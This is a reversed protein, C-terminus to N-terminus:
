LEFCSTKGCLKGFRLPNPLSADEERAEGQPQSSLAEELHNFILRNNYVIRPFDKDSPRYESHLGARFNASETGIREIHSWTDQDVRGKFAHKLHDIAFMWTNMAAEVDPCHEGKGADCARLAECKATRLAVWGHPLRAPACDATGSIWHPLFARGADSKRLFCTKVGYQQGFTWHSCEEVESCARSCVSADVAAFKDTLKCSNLFCGTHGYRSLDAFIANQGGHRLVVGRHSCDPYAGVTTLEPPVEAPEADICCREFTFDGDWCGQNGEPGYKAACCTEWSVGDMWCSEDGKSDAAPLLLVLYRWMPWKVHM